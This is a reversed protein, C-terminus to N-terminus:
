YRGVRETIEWAQTGKSREIVASGRLEKEGGLVDEGEWGRLVKAGM